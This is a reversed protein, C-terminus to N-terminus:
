KTVVSVDAHLTSIVDPRKTPVSQMIIVILLLLLITERCKDAINQDM